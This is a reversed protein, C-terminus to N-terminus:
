RRGGTIEFRIRGTELHDPDNAVVLIEFPGMALKDAYATPLAAPDIDIVTLGGGSGPNWRRM